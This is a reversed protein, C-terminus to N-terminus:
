ITCWVQYQRKISPEIAKILADFISNSVQGDYLKQRVAQLEEEVKFTGLVSEAAGEGIGLFQIAIARAPGLPSHTFKTKSYGYALRYFHFLAGKGQDQAALFHEFRKALESHKPKLLDGFSVGKTKSRSVRLAAISNDEADDGVTRRNRGSLKTLRSKSRGKDKRPSGEDFNM